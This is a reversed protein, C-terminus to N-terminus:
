HIDQRFTKTDRQLRLAKGALSATADIAPLHRIVFQKFVEFEVALGEYAKNRREMEAQLSEYQDKTVYHRRSNEKIFMTFKRRIDVAAQGTAKYCFTLIDDDTWLRMDKRLRQIGFVDKNEQLFDKANTNCVSLAEFEDKYTNYTYRVGEESMGLMTAVTKNTGLLNGQEDEMMPVKLGPVVEWEVFKWNM